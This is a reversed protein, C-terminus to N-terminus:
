GVYPVMDGTTSLALRPALNLVCFTFTLEALVSLRGRALLIGQKAALLLGPEWLRFYLRCLSFCLCIINNRSVALCFTCTYFM